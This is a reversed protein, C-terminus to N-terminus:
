MAPILWTTYGYVINRLILILYISKDYWTAENKDVKSYIQSSVITKSNFRTSMPNYLRVIIGFLM